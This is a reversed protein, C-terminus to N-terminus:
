MREGGRGSKHDIQYTISDVKKKEKNMQIRFEMITTNQEILAHM